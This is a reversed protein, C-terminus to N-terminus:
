ECHLRVAWHRQDDFYVTCFSDWSIQCLFVKVFTMKTGLMAHLVLTVAIIYAIYVETATILSGDAHFHLNFINIEHYLGHEVPTDWVWLHYRESCCDRGFSFELWQVIEDDPQHELVVRISRELKIKLHWSCQRLISSRLRCFTVNLLSLWDYQNLWCPILWTFLSPCPEFSRTIDPNPELRKLCM